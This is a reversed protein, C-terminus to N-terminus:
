GFNGLQNAVQLSEAHEIESMVFQRPHRIIKAVEVTETVEQIEV